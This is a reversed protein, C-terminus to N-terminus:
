RITRVDDLLVIGTGPADGKKNSIAFEVKQVKSIDLPEGFNCGTGEWCVFQAYSIEPCIWQSNTDTARHLFVGFIAGKDSPAYRVKIELTNPQGSGQYCFGIAKTGNLIGLPFQKSIGV